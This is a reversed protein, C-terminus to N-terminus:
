SDDPSQGRRNWSWDRLEEEEEIRAAWRRIKQASEPRGIASNGIAPGRLKSTDRSSGRSMEPAIRVPPELQRGAIEIQEPTKCDLTRNDPLGTLQWDNAKAIRKRNEFERELDCYRDVGIRRLFGRALM